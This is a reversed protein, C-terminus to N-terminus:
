RKFSINLRDMVCVCVCWFLTHVILREHGKPLGFVANWGVELENKTAEALYTLSKFSKGLIHLRMKVFQIGVLSEYETSVLLLCLM